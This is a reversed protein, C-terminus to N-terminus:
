IAHECTMGAVGLTMSTARSFVMNVGAVVAVACEGYQLGRLAAHNAVLGSSCATDYSACPGVMGLAFSVRGAVVSCTAATAAFVSRGAPISSLVEAYECAWLGVYVGAGSGFLQQKRQGAGHLVTYSQELLLRQQPDM